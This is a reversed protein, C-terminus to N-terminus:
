QGWPAAPAAPQPQPAPGNAWPAAPAGEGFAPAPTTPAPQAYAEAPPFGAAQPAAAPAPPVSGAPAVELTFVKAQGEHGKFTVRVYSGVPPKQATLQRWLSTPNCFVSWCVPKGDTGVQTTQIDLVPCPDYQGGQTMRIDRVYGEVSQGPATFVFRDPFEGTSPPVPINTYPDSM